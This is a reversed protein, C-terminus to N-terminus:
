LTIFVSLIIWHCDLVFVKVIVVCVVYSEGPFMNGSIVWLTM